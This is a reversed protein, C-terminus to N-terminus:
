QLYKNHYSIPNSEELYTQSPALNNDLRQYRYIYDFYNEVDSHEHDYSEHLFQCFYKLWRETIKRPYLNTTVRKLKVCMCRNLIDRIVNLQRRLVIIILNSTQSHFLLQASLIM